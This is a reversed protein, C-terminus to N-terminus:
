NTREVVRYLAGFAKNDNVAKVILEFVKTNSAVQGMFDERNMYAGRNFFSYPLHVQRDVVITFADKIPDVVIVGRNFFYGRNFFFQNDYDEVIQSTGRIVLADVIEKLAPRNVKSVLNQTRIRVRYPPDFEDEERPVTREDGHTDLWENTAEGIFTLDVLDRAETNRDALVKALAQLIAVNRQEEALFWSPVWTKLREFWQEQTM